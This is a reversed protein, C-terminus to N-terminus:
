GSALRRVLAEAQERSLSPRLQMLREVTREFLPGATNPRGPPPSGAGQAELHRLNIEAETEAAMWLGVATPVEAAPLEGRRTLQERTADFFSELHLLRPYRRALEPWRHYVSPRKRHWRRPPQPGGERVVARV